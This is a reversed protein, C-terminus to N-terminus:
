ELLIAHRKLCYHNILVVTNMATTKKQPHKNPLTHRALAHPMTTPAHSRWLNSQTFEAPVLVPKCGFLQALPRAGLAKELRRDASCTLEGLCIAVDCGLWWAPLRSTDIM